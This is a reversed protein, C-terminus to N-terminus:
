GGDSAPVYLRCPEGRASGCAAVGAPATVGSVVPLVVKSPHVTSHDVSVTEGKSITDFVWVGRNNGPAHITLRIQSGARFVYGFPFLEVRVPTLEGAPLPAADAQAHTHVRANFQRCEERV